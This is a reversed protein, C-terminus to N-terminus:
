VTCSMEWVGWEFVGEGDAIMGALLVTWMRFVRRSNMVRVLAQATAAVTPPVAARAASAGAVG